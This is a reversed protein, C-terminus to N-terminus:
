VTDMFTAETRNFLLLGLFLVVLTFGASYALMAANVTGAGLFAYRFAEVVPTLPNALILPRFREPIASVPYIVPTAYMWLQVGFTVLFRLDRYRTTLSSVIVGFGLGLGAMILLLLPTLLAWANIQVAAGSLMYYIVFVLFLVFQIAFTILNSILISVPVALRPFYVKGFLNANAIFTQSTKNLCEAFYSWIVTGSLYFLFQPLGDTPLAAIRGFIITFVLTTLLPQILYWLPGLITQKYVSVFDRWVFLMILDRAAWLEALRLDLWGRRPEIIMTWNSQETQVELAPKTLM